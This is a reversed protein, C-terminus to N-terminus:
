DWPLAEPIDGRYAGPLVLELSAERRNATARLEVARILFEYPQYIMASPWHLKVTTNPKWLEGAPDRWTTLEVTWSAADGFMRGIKARTATELDDEQTDPVTFTYPRIADLRRNRITVRGGPMGIIEPETGTIHSYYQQPRFQPTVSRVPGAHESGLVAVPEGPRVSQRFVIDGARNSGIVLGRQQALEALFPMVAQAAGISVDFFAPGPDAGDEFSVGLGFPEALEEAIDRLTLGIFELSPTEGSATCDVLVGPLSYGGATVTRAEPTSSPAVTLATGTFIADGGVAVDIGRYALPRFASRFEARDPEFPASLEVTDVEDIARRVTVTEWWRFRRGDIRVAVEDLGEADQASPPADARVPVQLREGPPLPASLGPNALAISQARGESGYVARAVDAWSEGGRTDFTTSSM